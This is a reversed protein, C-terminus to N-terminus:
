GDILFADSYDVSIVEGSKLPELNKVREIANENSTADLYVQVAMTVTVSHRKLPLIKYVDDDEFYKLRDQYDLYPALGQLRYVLAGVINVQEDNLAVDSHCLSAVLDGVLQDNERDMFGAM